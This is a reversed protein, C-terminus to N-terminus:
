NLNLLWKWLPIFKIKKGKIKEEAEYDWTIVLLNNCHLESSASIIGNTERSNVEDKSSAYTVQILAKVNAGSRLVFDVESKPNSWYFIESLPDNMRDQKLKLFVVNEMAIGIDDSLYFGAAVRLGNDIIYEKNPNRIQEKLSRSFKPVLFLLMVDELMRVYNIATRKTIGQKQKYIKYLNSVSLIKATNSLSYRIIEKILTPNRISFRELIDRVLLTNLYEQLLKIRTTDVKELVVRPFGGFKMYDELIAKVRFRSKSYQIEPTVEVENAILVEEFSFPLMEYSLTRGRLSSAIEKSLLKSSSGTIFLRANEKDYIRRVAIEWHEINQVEDFFLYIKEGKNEPYLEYYADLLLEFDSIQFPMLREDEFNVYLIKDKKIGNKTILEEILQYFYYTKGSQRPGYIAIISKSDTDVSIIKRKIIDKPLENDQFEKIVLKAKGKEM